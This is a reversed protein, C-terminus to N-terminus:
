RLMCPSAGRGSPARDSSRSRGASPRCAGRGIVSARVTATDPRLTHHQEICRGRARHMAAQEDARNPRKKCTRMARPSGARCRGAGPRQWAKEGGAGRRVGRLQQGSASARVSPGTHPVQHIGTALHHGVGQHLRGVDPRRLLASSRVSPVLRQWCYADRKGQRMGPANQRLM